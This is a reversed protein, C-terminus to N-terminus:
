ISLNRMTRKQIREDSKQELKKRREQYDQEVRRLYENESLLKDQSKYEEIREQLEFEQMSHVDDDIYYKYEALYLKNKQIDEDYGELINEADEKVNYYDLVSDCLKLISRRYSIIDISGPLDKSYRKAIALSLSCFISVFFKPSMKGNLIRKTLDDMLDQVDYRINEEVILKEKKIDIKKHKKKENFKKDLKEYDKKNIIKLGKHGCQPCISSNLKSVIEDIYRLEIMEKSKSTYGCKPCTYYLQVEESLKKEEEEKQNKENEWENQWYETSGTDELANYEESDDYVM